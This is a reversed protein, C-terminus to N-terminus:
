FKLGVSVVDRPPNDTTARDHNCITRCNSWHDFYLSINNTLDFGAGLHVSLHEGLQRVRDKSYMPGISLKLPLSAFPKWSYDVGVFINGNDISDYSRAVYWGLGQNLVTVDAFVQVMQGGDGDQIAGYKVGIDSRSENFMTSIAVACLIVFLVVFWSFRTDRKEIFPNLTKRM